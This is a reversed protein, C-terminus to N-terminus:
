LNGKYKRRHNISPESELDDQIITDSRSIQSGDYEDYSTVVSTDPIDNTVTDGHDGDVPCNWM